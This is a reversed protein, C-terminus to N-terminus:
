CGGGKSCGPPRGWLGAEARLLINSGPAPLTGRLFTWRPKIVIAAVAYCILLKKPHGRLCDFGDVRTQM